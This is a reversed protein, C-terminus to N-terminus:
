RRSAAHIGGLFRRIAANAAAPDELPSMHGTEPIEVYEANPIQAAMDCMVDPPTLSDEAGCLVLTPVTMKSLLPTSDPRQAMGHLAAAISRPDTTQITGRLQELVEPRDANTKQSVLKPLMAEVVTESGSRLVKEALQRRGKAGEETDAGPRTDCLVLSHLRRGYKEIFRFGIYGGMSLGCYCVPEEVGLSDLLGNLDDAFEDMTIADATVPENRGFGRLDPAIVRYKDALGDIQGTWMTDDLPFGHVLLIPSGHGRVVTHLRTM